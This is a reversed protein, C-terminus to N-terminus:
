DAYFVGATQCLQEPVALQQLDVKIEGKSPHYLADSKKGGRLVGMGGLTTIIM